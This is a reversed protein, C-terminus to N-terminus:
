CPRRSDLGVINKVDDCVLECSMEWHFLIDHGGLSRGM